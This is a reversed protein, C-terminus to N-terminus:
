RAFPRRALLLFHGAGWLNFLLIASLGIRLGDAPGFAQSIVGVILPGVGMGILNCGFQLMAVSLGRAHVPALTVFLSNAPGNYATAICGALLLLTVAAWTPGANLAGAMLIATAVCTLTAARAPLRPDFSARRRQARDVLIGAIMGGAATLIGFGFAVAMAAQGVPLGHSRVFFSVLWAGMGSMTIAVLMIGAMCHLLGPSRLIARLKPGDPQVTATLDETAGRRPERVTLLVLLGILLGPAGAALFATRWGFHQVAYGGGLFALTAGMGASMYWIGVAGSRERPAFYDSVLSLGTPTAGAEAAGVAARGLVLTAFSTAFGCLATFGSWVIIAWGLLRRREFRDVALGLPIAACAFAVGYALGALVGLQSDNLHFERKVPDLVLAVISRDMAHCFQALTLVGLAYWRYKGAGARTEPRIAALPM